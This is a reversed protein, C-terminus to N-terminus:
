SGKPKFFDSMKKMGSVNVKKLEKVGRSEGAKKRKEEEEKKRKKERKDDDDEDLARKRSYDSASRSLAAEQRLKTLQAGYDDLATFDVSGKGDALMKKLVAALSPPLYSSCIFNVAIRLRQLRTVEESAHMASEAGDTVLTAATSAESAATATTSVSSQSESTEPSSDTKTESSTSENTQPPNSKKIGLVPAELAKTVFKDEMSKPLGAESMKKAKALLQDLLKDESFRFMVEDGAEATDCIAALRSELAERWTPWRLTERLHPTEESLTDFHDDSSLFMRKSTSSFQAQLAPLALFLPDVPTAIFLDAGKTVQADFSGRVDDEKTTTNNTDTTEILWSRPTTKPAAVRTFEYAGTEPCVLYRTPKSYRPNKLSVVRAEPTAKNPLILVKPPNTSEQPLPYKSSTSAVAADKNRSAATKDAAAGKTARTRAM